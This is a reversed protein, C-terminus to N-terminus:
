PTPEKQAVTLQSLQLARVHAVIAWRDRVPIQPGYAPMNSVGNSITAFLQGDPIERIRKQHFTPPLQMGHKVVIGQGGGSSDHCPVCYIGYRKEGRELLQAMGGSEEVVSAPITMAYGSGDALRGKGVEPDTTMEQSVTGEVQPRMNRGDDKFFASEGQMNYRPQMYMNRIPVIPTERSTEGRCAVLTSIALFGGLLSAKM